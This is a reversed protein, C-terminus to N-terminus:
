GGPRCFGDRCYERMVPYIAMVAAMSTLAPGAGGTAARFDARSETL